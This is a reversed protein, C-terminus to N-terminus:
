LKSMKEFFLKKLLLDHIFPNIDDNSIKSPRYIRLFAFRKDNVLNLPVSLYEFAYSLSLPVWSFSVSEHICLM